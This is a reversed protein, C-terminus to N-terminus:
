LQAPPPLHEPVGLIGLLGSIALVRRVIPSVKSLRLERGAEHAHEQCTLLCRIGASDLFSVGGLHVDISRIDQESLIARVVQEFHDTVPGDLEGVATIRARTSPEVHM